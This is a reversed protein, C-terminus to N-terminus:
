DTRFPAVRTRNRFACAKRVPMVFCSVATVAALRRPSRRDPYDFSALLPHGAQTLDPDGGGKLIQAAEIVNGWYMGSPNLAFVFVDCHESLKHLLQLYMPAMTSIGFVFYREPLKDKDLAALLKEWLAVRHPASQRGDDLYRWLKSQWIEDDGLGLRRGQQWADIWQPRYM